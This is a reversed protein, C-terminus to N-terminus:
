FLKSSHLYQSNYEIQYFDFLVGFTFRERNLYNQKLHQECCCLAQTHARRLQLGSDPCHCPHPCAPSQLSCWRAQGPGPEVQLLDPTQEASGTNGTVLGPGTVVWLQSRNLSMLHSNPALEQGSYLGVRGWRPLHSPHDIMKSAGARFSSLFSRNQTGLLASHGPWLGTRVHVCNLQAGRVRAQSQGSTRAHVSHPHVLFSDDSRQM